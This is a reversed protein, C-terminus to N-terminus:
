RWMTPPCSHGTHRGACVWSRRPVLFPTNGPTGQLCSALTFPSRLLRQSMSKPCSERCTPSFSPPWPSEPWSSSLVSHGGVEPGLQTHVTPSSTGRHGVTDGMASWAESVVLFRSLPSLLWTQACVLPFLPRGPQVIPVGESM